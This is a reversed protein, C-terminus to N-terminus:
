YCKTCCDCVIAELCDSTLSKFEYDSAELSMCISRPIEGTLTNDHLELVELFELMMPPVTGELLNSHLWCRRLKPMEALVLLPGKLRNNSLNLTTLSALFQFQSPLGTQISSTLFNDDLLLSELRVWYKLFDYDEVYIQNSQLNLSKLHSGLFALELPLDGSLNNQPLLISAVLEEDDQCTIGKWGCHTVASLWLNQEIWRGPDEVYPNAVDNTAFYFVVLAFRELRQNEELQMVYDTDTLFQLYAKHQPTYPQTTDLLLAPDLGFRDYEELLFALLLSENSETPTKPKTPSSTPVSSAMTTPLPTEPPISVGTDDNDRRVIVVIMVAQLVIVLLLLVSFWIILPKSCTIRNSKSPEHKTSSETTAAAAATASGGTVVRPQFVAVPQVPATTSALNYNSTPPTPAGDDDDKVEEKTEEEGEYYPRTPHRESHTMPVITESIQSPESMEIHSSPESLASPMEPTIPAEVDDDELTIEEKTEETNKEKEEEKNPM